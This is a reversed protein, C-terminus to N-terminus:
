LGATVSRRESGFRSDRMARFTRAMNIESAAASRRSSAATWHSSKPWWSKALCNAAPWCAAAFGGPNEPSRGLSISPRWASRMLRTASRTQAPQRSCAATWEERALCAVVSGPPMASGSAQKAVATAAEPKERSSPLGRWRHARHSRRRKVPQNAQRATAPTPQSMATSSCLLVTSLTVVVSPVAFGSSFRM